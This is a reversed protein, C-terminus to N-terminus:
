QKVPAQGEKRAKFAEAQADLKGNMEAIVAATQYDITVGLGGSRGPRMALTLMDNSGNRFVIVRDSDVKTPAEMKSQWGSRALKERYFAICEDQTKPTQFSLRRQSSSFQLETADPIAPIEAPLMESGFTM